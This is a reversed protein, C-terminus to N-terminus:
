SRAAKVVLAPADAAAGYERYEIIYPYENRKYYVKITLGTYDLEGQPPNGAQNVGILTDKVTGDANYTIVTNLSPVHTFGDYTREPAKITLKLDDSGVISEYQYYNEPKSSDTSDANELYYEISYLGHETDKM